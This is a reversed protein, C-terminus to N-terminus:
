AEYAGVSPPNWRQAGDVDIGPKVFMGARYVASSATPIYDASLGAASLSSFLANGVPVTPAGSDNVTHANLYWERNGGNYPTGTNDNNSLYCTTAAAPLIFANNTCTPFYPFDAYNGNSSASALIVASPTSVEGNGNGGGKRTAYYTQDIFLNHRIRVQDASFPFGTKNEGVWIAYSDLNEFVNGEIDISTTSVLAGGTHADRTLVSLQGPIYNTPTGGQANTFKCGRVIGSGAIQDKAKSHIRIGQVLFGAATINIGRGYDVDQSDFVSSVLPRTARITVGSVRDVGAGTLVQANVAVHRAGRINADIIEIDRSFGGVSATTTFGIGNMGGWTSSTGEDESASTIADYTYRIVRINRAQYETENSFGLGNQRGPYKTVLDIVDVDVTAFGFTLQGGRFEMDRITEGKLDRLRGIVAATTGTRNPVFVLGNYFTFPNYAANDGGAASTYVNLERGNSGTTAYEKEAVCGAPTTRYRFADTRSANQTAVTVGAWVRFGIGSTHNFPAAGFDKRWVGPIGTVSPPSWGSTGTDYCLNDIIPANSGVGADYSGWTQGNHVTVAPDFFFSGAAQTFIRGRALLVTDGAAFRSAASSAGGNLTQRPSGITGPNADLGAVPDYYLTAM